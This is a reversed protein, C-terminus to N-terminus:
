TNIENIYEIMFKQLEFWVDEADFKHLICIHKLYSEERPKQYIISALLTKEMFLDAQVYGERNIKLLLNRKEDYKFEKHYTNM